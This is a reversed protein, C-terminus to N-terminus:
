LFPINKHSILSLGRKQYFNILIYHGIGFQLNSYINCYIEYIKHFLLRKLVVMFCAYVFCHGAFLAEIRDIGDITWNGKGLDNWGDSRTKNRDKLAKDISEGWSKRPGRLRRRGEQSM